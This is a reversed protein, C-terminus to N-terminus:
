NKAKPGSVRFKKAAKVGFTGLGRVPPVVCIFTRARRSPRVIVGGPVKKASPTTDSSLKKWSLLLKASKPFAVHCM